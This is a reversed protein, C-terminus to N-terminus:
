NYYHLYIMGSHFLWPIEFCCFLKSYPSFFQVNLVLYFLFINVKSSLSSTAKESGNERLNRRREQRRCAGRRPRDWHMQTLTAANCASCNCHGAELKRTGLVLPFLIAPCLTQNSNPSGARGQSYTCFLPYVKLTLFCWDAPTDWRVTYVTPWLPSQIKADKRCPYSDYLTQSLLPTAEAHVLRSGAPSSSGEQQNMGWQGSLELSPKMVQQEPVM